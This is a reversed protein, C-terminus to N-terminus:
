KTIEIADISLTKPNYQGRYRRGCNPCPNPHEEGDTIWGEQKGCKCIFSISTKGVPTTPRTELIPRLIEKMKQRHNDAMAYAIMWSTANIIWIATLWQRDLLSLVLVSANGLGLIWYLLKGKM